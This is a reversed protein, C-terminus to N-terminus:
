TIVEEKQRMETFKVRFYDYEDLLKIRNIM